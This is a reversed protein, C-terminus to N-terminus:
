EMKREQEHLHTRLDTRARAKLKGLEAPTLERDFRLTVRNVTTEVESPQRGLKELCIERIWAGRDKTLVYEKM